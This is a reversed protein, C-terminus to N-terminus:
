RQLLTVQAPELFAPPGTVQVVPLKHELPVSRFVGRDVVVWHSRACTSGEQYDTTM